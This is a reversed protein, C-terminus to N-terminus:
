PGTGPVAAEAAGPALRRDRVVGSQGIADVDVRVFGRQRLLDVTGVLLYARRTVHDYVTALSFPLKLTALGVDEPLDALELLEAYAREDIWPVDPLNARRSRSVLVAPSQSVDVLLTTGPRLGLRLEASPQPWLRHAVGPVLLALLAVGVTTTV